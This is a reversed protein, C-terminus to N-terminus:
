NANEAKTDEIKKIIDAKFAQADFWSPFTPKIKYIKYFEDPAFVFYWAQLDLEFELQEEWNSNAKQVPKDFSSLPRIFYPLKIIDQYGDYYPNLATLEPANILAEYEFCYLKQWRQVEVDYKEMDFDHNAPIPFHPAVENLRKDSIDAGDVWQWFAHEFTTEEQAFTLTVLAILFTTLLYKAKM